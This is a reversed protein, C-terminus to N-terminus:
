HKSVRFKEAQTTQAEIEELTISKVRSADMVQFCSSDYESGSIM